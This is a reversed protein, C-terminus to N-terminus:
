KVNDQLVQAPTSHENVGASELSSSLLSASDGLNIVYAFLKGPYFTVTQIVLCHSGLHLGNEVPGSRSGIAFYLEGTGDSNGPPIELHV